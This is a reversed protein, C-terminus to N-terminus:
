AARRALLRRRVADINNRLAYLEEAHALPVTTQNALRDLEDLENLLETREGLGEDLRAEIQRLRAYWRFVRRRVRFTYLPPVVRSLPLLLVILGGIVLWMRELLNSAWFPLYRQWIPPTGNIARDGEPSVPLESTRTNPFDRARNFWGADGHFGQAAQAFLQRLAPHTDERTLLSTTTALLGIDRPPVDASLDVVGRPLTISQLFPFRRTYADAQAVDMLAIGPAHLLQLVVPSEPATVLVMADILGGQLAEAAAEPALQSLVLTDNNLGNAQLLRQLMDPVGSGPQDINVRLGKLQPLTTLPEPPPAAGRPKRAKPGADTRALRADTRHFVWIPEYFLAGLSTIGAEGDAQPDASGGRVFAAGATGARLAQLNALSGETAQLQVSIGNRALAEAYRQGFEAYASGAPGTALTVTKPPQPDLWWYAAVLVGAAILAVPGASVLMDRISLVILTLTRRVPGIM